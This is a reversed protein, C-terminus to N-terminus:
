RRGHRHPVRVRHRHRRRRRRPATGRRDQGPRGPHVIDAWTREGGTFEAPDHGLLARFGESLFSAHWPEYLDSRYAAGPLSEVLGGVLQERERLADETRRLETIDSVFGELYLLTEEEDWVGTGREWVSRTEGGKSVIRYTITWPARRELAAQIADWVQRRDEAVIIDGYAPGKDRILEDPEYGTLDLCGASLLNM